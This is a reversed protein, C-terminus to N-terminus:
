RSGRGAARGSSRSRRARPARSRALADAVVKAIRMERTEPRKADVIWDVHERQHSFSMARFAVSAGGRTLASALDRPLTVTRPATDLELAVTARKGAELKAAERLERRVPLYYRGGYVAITSRYEVGNLSARVPPRQKDGLTRVASAPVEILLVGGENPRAVATFSVSPVRAISAASPSRRGSRM